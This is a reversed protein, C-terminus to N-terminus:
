YNFGISTQLLKSKIVGMDEAVLKYQKSVLEFVTSARSEPDIIWYEKVGFREYLDKKLILDHDKNNPSLIEILIDPVGHIYGKEDIIRRNENLVVIIDPQVVNKVEDLYVDFPAIIVEGRGKDSVESCLKRFIEQVTKQHAFIPSPSMYLQNDILEALTGEPLTKYVEMMTRPPTELLSKM